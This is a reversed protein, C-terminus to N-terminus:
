ADAALQRALPLVLDAGGDRLVDIPRAGQWARNRGTLV